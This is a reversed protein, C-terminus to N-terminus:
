EALYQFVQVRHNYTDAVFIQDTEDIFIDSALWFEGERTGTRGFPLLLQGSVDFIQVRDTLADVVYINGDSDVSIGKPRSFDGFGDGLKGFHSLYNGESDFIQIRFNMSDVVYLRGDAVALHVPYNFDNKQEGREGITKILELNDLSFVKVVHAITDSVYLRKKATDIALGTPRAFGEISTILKGGEEFVLVQASESDSVYVKNDTGVVVDVPQKIEKVEAGTLWKVLSDKKWDVLWITRAGPDTIYLRDKNGGLGYPGVLRNEEKLGLVMNFLNKWWARPSNEFDKETAFTDILQIKAAPPPAPWYMSEAAIAPVALTVIAIFIILASTKKM